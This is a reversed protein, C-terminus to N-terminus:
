SPMRSSSLSSVSRCSGSIPTGFQPRIAVEESSGEIQLKVHAFKSLYLPEIRCVKSRHISYKNLAPRAFPCKSDLCRDVHQGSEGDLLKHADAASLSPTRFHWPAISPQRRNISLQWSPRPEAHHCTSGHHTRRAWGMTSLQAEERCLENCATSKM